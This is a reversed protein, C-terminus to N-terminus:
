EKTRRNWAKRAEQKTKYLPTLVGCGSCKMTYKVINDRSHFLTGIAAKGGCFPCPKLEEM